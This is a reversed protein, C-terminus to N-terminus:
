LHLYKRWTEYGSEFTLQKSYKWAVHRMKEYRESDLLVEKIATSLGSPTNKRAVVGTKGNQVSDRLGDVDYVVAPTGQTNAETVILGWGEKVSTVLILHSKQMIEVKRSNPVRGLYEIDSSFKSNRAHRLVGRGYRGSGDGVIKLKLNPIDEKLVEFALIQEKTRKMPRISGVSILTPDTFKEGLMDFNLVPEIKVGISFVRIKDEPFGFKVLDRMASKSETFIAFTNGRALIRLYVMELFYGILSLPFPMQYFWIERCLQYFLYVKKRANKVYYHAFFPVTNVEDIVIDFFENALYKRYYRFAEWYVTYRNGLRVIRFGDREEHSEGGSFGGVIFLVRHGDRALRKALEENVTEAGGAEPHRGDKWTFWLINM